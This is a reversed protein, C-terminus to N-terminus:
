SGLLELGDLAADLFVVLAGLREDPGGFGRVGEGLDLAGALGAM